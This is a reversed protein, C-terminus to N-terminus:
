LERDDAGSLREPSILEHVEAMLTSRVLVVNFQHASQHDRAVPVLGCGNLFTLVEGALWQGEWFSRDEVEVMLASARNLVSRGGTVVKGTAGEVDIWLAASQFEHDAFFSDLTTCPIQVPAVDVSSTRQMLSARGDSRLVGKKKDVGINLSVTGPEDSMAVNLYEIANNRRAFRRHTVPSAEFAVVRPVQLDRARRSASAEKAGAEIFLDPRLQEVLGFFLDVLESVSRDLPEGVTAFPSRSAQVFRSEVAWRARKKV